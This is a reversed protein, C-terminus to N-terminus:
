ISLSLNGSNNLCIGYIYKKNSYTIFGSDNETTKYKVTEACMPDIKYLKIALLMVEFNNDWIDTCRLYKHNGNVEKLLNQYM